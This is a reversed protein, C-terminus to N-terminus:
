PIKGAGLYNKQWYAYKLSTLEVKRGQGPAHVMQNNGLYIGVHNAKNKNSGFFVLDGREPQKIKKSFQYQEHSTRPLIIGSKAFSYHVLGSCDFGEQPSEGSLKYPKGIQQMAVATASSGKKNTVSSCANLLLLGLVLIFIQFYNMM